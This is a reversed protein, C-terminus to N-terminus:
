SNKFRTVVFAIVPYIELRGIIMGLSMAIKSFDSFISFDPIEFYLGVNAFTTFVANITIELPHNDLGVIFLLVLVIAIYLFMFSKTSTLIEEDVKKSEFTM